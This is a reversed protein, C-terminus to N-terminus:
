KQNEKQTKLKCNDFHWRIMNATNGIKSCHPCHVQRKAAESAKPNKKGFMPHKESTRGFCHALEGTKGFMPNLIGIKKRNLTSVVPNKRGKNPHKTMNRQTDLGRLSAERSISKNDTQNLFREDSVAKIRRLVKSEWERALDCDQFIKRVEVVDPEGHEKRFAKVHKSSTFYSKWLDTPVSNKAYRVGYYWKQHQTWGILYTYAM